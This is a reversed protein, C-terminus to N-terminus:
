GSSVNFYPKDTFSLGTKFDGVKILRVHEPTPDVNFTDRYIYDDKPKERRGEITDEVANGYVMSTTLMVLLSVYTITTITRWVSNGLGKVFDELKQGGWPPAFGGLGPLDSASQVYLIYSVFMMLAVDGVFAALPPALYAGFSLAGILAGTIGVYETTASGYGTPDM